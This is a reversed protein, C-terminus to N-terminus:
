CPCPIEPPTPDIRENFWVPDADQPWAFVNNYLYCQMIMTIAIDSDIQQTGYQIIHESLTLM